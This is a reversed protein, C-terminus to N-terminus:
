TFWLTKKARALKVIIDISCFLKVFHLFLATIWLYIFEPAYREVFRPPSWLSEFMDVKGQPAALYFLM